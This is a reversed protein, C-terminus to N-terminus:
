TEVNPMHAGSGHTSPVRSVIGIPYAIKAIAYLAVLTPVVGHSGNDFHSFVVSFSFPVDRPAFEDIAIKLSLM